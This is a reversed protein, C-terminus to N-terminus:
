PAKGPVSSVEIRGTNDTCLSYVVELNQPRPIDEVEVFVPITQPCTAGDDDWMSVRYWRSSDPVLVPNALTSDNMADGPSWIYNDYGAAQLEVSEGRCVTHRRVVESEPVACSPTYALVFAPHPNDGIPISFNAHEFRYCDQGTDSLYENVMAVGDQKHVYNNVTDGNLGEAMGNEYYFHGQAGVEPRPFVFDGSWIDGLMENNMSIRSADDYHWIRDGFISFVVPTNDLFDPTPVCYIQPYNQSQNATYLRLCVEETVEPAKYLMVVCAGYWGWNWDDDYFTQVPFDATLESGNIELGETVDVVHTAFYDTWTNVEPLEPGPQSAYDWNVARGNIFTTHPEPRGYRYTVVFARKLEYGEEWKMQFKGNMLSGLSRHGGITIGGKFCEEAFLVQGKGSEIFCAFLVICVFTTKFVKRRM